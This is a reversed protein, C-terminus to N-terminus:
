AERRVYRGAGAAGTFAGGEVVPRGRSFVAEPWGRVRRGAYPTYDCNQHLGEASLEVERAPDWVVVDADAGPALSGKRPYLGFRRAAATSTVNVFQSLTLRGANVGLHFLLPLRTEIGPGGGPIRNFPPLGESWPPEPPNQVTGGPLRRFEPTRRRGAKQALTFPCHDTVVLDLGGQRLAAWLAEADRGTRIPPAMCYRAPDFGAQDYVAETLALYQPCTEGTV